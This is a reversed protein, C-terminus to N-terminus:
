VEAGKREVFARFGTRPDAHASVAASAATLSHSSRAPAAAASVINGSKNLIVSGQLYRGLELCADDKKYSPLTFVIRDFKSAAEDTSVVKQCIVALESPLLYKPKMPLKSADLIITDAGSDAALHFAAQLAETTTDAADMVGKAIKKAGFKDAAVKSIDMGSSLHVVLVRATKLPDAASVTEVSVAAPTSPATQRSAPQSPIEPALDRQLAPSVAVPQVLPRQVSRSAPQPELGLSLFSPTILSDAASSAHARAPAFPLTLGHVQPEPSARDSQEQRETRTRMDIVAPQVAPQTPVQAQQVRGDLAPAAAPVGRLLGILGNAKDVAAKAKDDIVKAFGTADPLTTEFSTKLKAQFAEANIRSKVSDITAIADRLQDETMDRSAGKFAMDMNVEHNHIQMFYQILRIETTKGAM